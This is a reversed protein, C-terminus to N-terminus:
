ATRYADILTQTVTNGDRDRAEARFSVTGGAPPNDVHVRGNRVPAPAWTEGRDYSVEVALSAAPGATGRATVPIRVRRDAPSTNEPTLDPTFHVAGSPLQVTEGADAPGSAFAYSATVATGATAGPRTAEVVLEYAAEDAPVDFAFWDASETSRAYEEGNRYLTVRASDTLSSGGHGAGDGFPSTGGHIVNGTRFIGNDGANPAPGFVATNFAERYRHGARYERAQSGHVSEEGGDPGLQWLEQSWRGADAQVFVETVRPLERAQAAAIEVLSSRTILQGHRGDAWAGQRTTVRAMDRLPVRLDLGTYFSDEARDALHYRRDGNKWWTSATASMRWGDAVQGLQATRHGGPAAPYAWTAAMGFDGNEAVYENALIVSEQTADDDPGTMTVPRADAADVRVTTDGTVRVDPRILWDSSLLTTGDEAWELFTVDVAYRGAPVRGTLTTGDASVALEYFEARDLNAVVTSAPVAPRGDRGVPEVTLDVLPEEGDARTGPVDEATADLAISEIGPAAAPTGNRGAPDTLSQWVEAAREPTITLEELEDGEHTVLLRLGNDAEGLATVDFLRRDLVDDALLPRVDAPLALTAGATEVFQVPIHERGQAPILGTTEGAENLVVRDGTVLTVLREGPAQAPQGPSAAQAGAPSAAAGPASPGVALAAALVACAALATLRPSPSRHHSRM